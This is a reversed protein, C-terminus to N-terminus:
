KHLHTHAQLDTHPGHFYMNLQPWFLANFGRSMTMSPILCGINIPSLNDLSAIHARECSLCQQAKIYWTTTHTLYFYLLIYIVTVFETTYHIDVNQKDFFLKFSLKGIAFKGVELYTPFNSVCNHLSCRFKSLVNISKHRKIWVHCLLLYNQTIMWGLQDRAFLLPLGAKEEM